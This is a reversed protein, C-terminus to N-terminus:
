TLLHDLELRRLYAHFGSPHIGILDSALEYDGEALNVLYEAYERKKHWLFEAMTQGTYVPVPTAPFLEEPLHEPCIVGGSACEASQGMVNQLERVNGPWDYRQLVADAEASIVPVALDNEQAYNSLCHRALLPIDDRRERLAPVRIFLRKLRYYLDERFTKTAIAAKLDRNTASVVRVDVHITQTGGIRRIERQELARLLKAQLPLALEGIEDLFLTGGEAQEFYGKHQAFAGSFSGREYGFLESEALNEPLAACNVPVWPRENRRSRSHLGRAVLEKGAGSPGQILVAANRPGFTAIWRRVACMAPTDGVLQDRLDNRENPQVGDSM